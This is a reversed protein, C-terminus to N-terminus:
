VLLLRQFTKKKGNEIGFDEKAIQHDIKEAFPTKEYSLTIEPRRSNEFLLRQEDTFLIYKMKDIEQLKQIMQLIDLERLIEKKAEQLLISKPSFYFEIQGM